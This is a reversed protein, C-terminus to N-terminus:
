HKKLRTYLTHCLPNIASFLVSDLPTAWPRPKNVLNYIGPLWTVVTIYGIQNTLLGQAFTCTILKLLLQLSFLHLVFVLRGHMWNVPTVMQEQVLQGQFASASTVGM